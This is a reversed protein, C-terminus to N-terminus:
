KGKSKKVAYIVGAIIGVLVVAGGIYLLTRTTKSKQEKEKNKADAQAQRQAMVTQVIQKRAETQKALTDTAGFKKARQGEMVKGAVGGGVDVIGKIADSWGVNSFDEGTANYYDDNVDDSKDEFNSADFYIHMVKYTAKVGADSIEEEGDFGVTQNKHNILFSAGLLLKRNSPANDVFANILQIDTANDPVNINAGRIVEIFDAKDKILLNGLETMIVRNANNNDKSKVFRTLDSYFRSGNM